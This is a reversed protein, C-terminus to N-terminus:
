SFKINPLAGLLTDGEYESMTGAEEHQLLQFVKNCSAKCILRLDINCKTDAPVFCFLNLCVQVHKYLRSAFFRKYQLCKKRILLFDSVFRRPGSQALAGAVM